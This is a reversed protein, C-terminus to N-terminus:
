GGIQVMKRTSNVSGQKPKLHLIRGLSTNFDTGKLSIEYDSFLCPRIKGDCTLRLRDCSECDGRNTGEVISRTGKELDMQRIVRVDIEERKGFAKIDGLEHDNVGPLLVTNIKIPSFGVEKVAQIGELVSSLSGMPTISKFTEPNLTDLSINIRNLGADKLPKAFTTLLSGNTTLGLDKLGELKALMEVLHLINKRVLPEGGTLRVKTIGNKVFHKVIDYIEELTLIKSHPKLKINEHPTCYNCKFNCRDTVSVRLYTIQRGHSDLLM